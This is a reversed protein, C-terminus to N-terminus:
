FWVRVGASASLTAFGIPAVSYVEVTAATGDLEHAEAFYLAGDVWSLGAQVFFGGSRGRIELGISGSAYDYEVQELQRRSRRAREPLLAVIADAEGRFTHGAEVSVFPVVPGSTTTATMGGRVGPSLANHTISAHLRFAAHFRYMVGGGLGGPLGADVQVGIRSEAMVEGAPTVLVVATVLALGLYRSSM